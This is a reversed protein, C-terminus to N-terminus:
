SKVYYMLSRNYLSSIVCHIRAKNVKKNLKSYQPFKEIRGIENVRASFYALDTIPMNYNLKNEETEMVYCWVESFACNVTNVVKKNVTKVSKNKSYLFNFGVLVKLLFIFFVIKKIFCM